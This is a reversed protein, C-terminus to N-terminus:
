RVSLAVSRFRRMSVIGHRCYDRFPTMSALLPANRDNRCGLSSMASRWTSV